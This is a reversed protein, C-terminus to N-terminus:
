DQVIRKIGDRLVPVNFNMLLGLWLGSLKLYTIVQAEFVAEMREVAKLELLLLDDVVIDMRYACDLSIGKYQLPLDLQPRFPIKRLELEHCLCVQYANELLGPGLHRHVEIAAGIIERSLENAKEKFAATHRHNM